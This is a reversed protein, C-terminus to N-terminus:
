GCRRSPIRRYSKSCRPIWPGGRPRQGCKPCEGLAEGLAPEDPALDKFRLALIRVRDDTSPWASAAELLRAVPLAPNTAAARWVDDGPHRALRQLEEVPLRPNGAVAALVHPTEESALRVLVAPPPHPSAAIASRVLASRDTALQRLLLQSRTRKAIEWRVVEARDGALQHALAAADADFRQPSTGDADAPPEWVPSRAAAARVLELSNSALKM